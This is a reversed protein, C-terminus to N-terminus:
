INGYSLFNVRFEHEGDQNPCGGSKFHEFKCPANDSFQRSNPTGPLFSTILGQEINPQYYKKIGYTYGLYIDLTYDCEHRRKWFKKKKQSALQLMLVGGGNGDFGLTATSQYKGERIMLAANPYARFVADIPDTPFGNVALTTIGRKYNPEHNSPSTIKDGIIVVGDLNGVLELGKDTFPMYPTLDYKDEANFSFEGKYKQKYAQIEKEFLADDEIDFLADLEKDAARLKTYAGDFGLKQFYDLVQEKTMADLKSVIQSYANEDKFKLVKTSNPKSSRTLTPSYTSLDVVEVNKQVPEFLQEKNESCSAFMLLTFLFVGLRGSNTFM